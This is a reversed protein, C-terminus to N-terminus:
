SHGMHIHALAPALIGSFSILYFFFHLDVNRIHFTFTYHSGARLLIWLRELGTGIQIDFHLEITSLSREKIKTRDEKRKQTLNKLCPLSNPKKIFIERGATLELDFSSRLSVDSSLLHAKLQPSSKM